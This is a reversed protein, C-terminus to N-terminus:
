LSVEVPPSATFTTSHQVGGDHWGWGRQGESMPLDEGRRTRCIEGMAPIEHLHGRTMYFEAGVKGPQMTTTGFFVDRGEKRYEIVEYVLPNGLSAVSEQWAARDQFLGELDSLHEAHRLTACRPAGTMADISVAETLLSM